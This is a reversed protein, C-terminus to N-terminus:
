DQDEVEERSKDKAKNIAGFRQQEYGTYYITCNPPVSKTIWVNGGIITDHGIITDGGLITAGSYLVVRDEITPHRKTKAMEKDVSLAGLTVGQYIKVHEGIEVTEGIVVGTGHDICFHRGIRAKPHIDIGTRSHAHEGLIRPVLPVGLKCFEHALRYVAIAYFGPYSRIVETVSVAAPDGQFIAEADEMLMQRLKPLTDMFSIEIQDKHAKMRDQLLGLFKNLELSLHKLFLDFERFSACRHNALEPFLAGLLGDTWEVVQKPSPVRNRHRYDRYLEELFARDM